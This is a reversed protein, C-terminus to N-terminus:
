REYCGLSDEGEVVDEVGGKHYEQDGAAGGPEGGKANAAAAEGKILDPLHSLQAISKGRLFDFVNEKM